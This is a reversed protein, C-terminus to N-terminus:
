NDRHVYVYCLLFSLRFIHQGTFNNKLNTRQAFDNQNIGHQGTNYGCIVPTGINGPTEVVFSDSICDGISNGLILLM